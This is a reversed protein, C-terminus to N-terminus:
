ELLGGVDDRLYGLPQVERVCFPDHMTIHLRRVDNKEFAVAGLDSVEADGLDGRAGVQRRGALKEARRVVHRGLLDFTRREISAAVDERETDTEILAECM